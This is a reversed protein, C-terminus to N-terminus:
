SDYQALTLLLQAMVEKRKDILLTNVTATYNNTGDIYISNVYRYFREIRYNVEIVGKPTEYSTPEQVYKMIEEFLAVQQDNMISMYEYGTFDTKKTRELLDLLENNKSPNETWCYAILQEMNDSLTVYFSPMEELFDHLSCLRNPLVSVMNILTTIEQYDCIMMLIPLCDSTLFINRSWLYEKIEKGCVESDMSVIVSGHLPTVPYEIVTHCGFYLSYHMKTENERSRTRPETNEAHQRKM